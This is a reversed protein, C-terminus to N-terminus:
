SSSDSIGALYLPKLIAVQEMVWEEFQQPSKEAARNRPLPIGAQFKITKLRQLSAGLAQLREPTIEAQPVAGADGLTYWLIPSASGLAELLEPAGRQLNVGFQPKDDADDEVFVTVRVGAASVAVRFHTWRKYGKRDRCFAVWTEQPPNVRRRMHQATHPFLPSEVLAELKDGLDEGLALLKPRIRARIAAMRDAFEPISFVDFDDPEFGTFEVDAEQALRV